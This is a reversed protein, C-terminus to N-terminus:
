FAPQSKPMGLRTMTNMAALRAYVEAVQSDFRGDTRGPKGHNRARCQAANLPLTPGPCPITGRRFPPKPGGRRSRKTAVTATMGRWRGLAARDSRRRPSYRVTALGADDRPGCSGQHTGSSSRRTTIWLALSGALSPQSHLPGM